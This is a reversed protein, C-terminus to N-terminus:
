IEESHKSLDFRRLPNEILDHVAISVLFRDDLPRRGQQRRYNGRDALWAVM